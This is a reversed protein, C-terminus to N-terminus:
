TYVREKAISSTLVLPLLAGLDATAKFNKDPEFSAGISVLIFNNVLMRCFRNSQPPLLQLLFM